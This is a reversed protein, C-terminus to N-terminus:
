GAYGCFQSITERTAFDPAYTPKPRTASAVEIRRAQTGTWSARLGQSNIIEVIRSTADGANHSLYLPTGDGINGFEDFVKADQRHYFVIRPEIGKPPRRIAAYASSQCRKFNMRATFGAKRLEAFAKRVRIKDTVVCYIM